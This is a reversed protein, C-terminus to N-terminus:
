QLFPFYNIQYHMEPSRSRVFRAPNGAVVTLPPVDKTVVAGAAVVAGRGITVGPLIIARSGIWVYDEITVPSSMVNHMPDDILHEQTWIIVEPGIDVNAGITILAGRGDLTCGYNITSHNGICINAARRIRVQMLISSNTGILFIRRYFFLRLAHSPLRSVFHNYFYLVSGTSFHEYQRSCWVLARRLAGGEGEIKVLLTKIADRM